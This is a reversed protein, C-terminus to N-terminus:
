GIVDLDMWQQQRRNQPEIVMEQPHDTSGFPGRKKTTSSSRAADRKANCAM